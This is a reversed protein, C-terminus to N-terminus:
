LTRQLFKCVKIAVVAFVFWLVSPITPIADLKETQFIKTAEKGSGLLGQCTVM